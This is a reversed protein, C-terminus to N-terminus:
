MLFHRERQVSLPVSLNIEDGLRSAKLLPKRWENFAGERFKRYNSAPYRKIM